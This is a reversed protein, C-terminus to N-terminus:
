CAGSASRTDDNSDGAKIENSVLIFKELTEYAKGSDIIEAALKIGDEFSLVGATTLAAYEGISHGATIDPNIGNEKLIREVLFQSLGFPKGSTLLGQKLEVYNYIVQRQVEESIQIRRGMLRIEKLNLEIRQGQSRIFGEPRILM